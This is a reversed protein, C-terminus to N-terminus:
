ISRASLLERAASLGEALRSASGSGQAIEDSGGGQGGLIPLASKLLANMPMGPGAPRAFCLHVREGDPSAILAIRGRAVLATALLKAAQM